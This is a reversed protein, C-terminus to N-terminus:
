GHGVTYILRGCVFLEPRGRSTSSFRRSVLTQGPFHWFTFQWENWRLTEGDRKANQVPIPRTTLCPLRFGAPNGIVESMSHTFYVPSGFAAVVDNVYDTHDDHYHTIWIGDVSSIRGEARMRQLEPLLKSYGADVVFASGTKSLIVRSNGIAIIDTPLKATKAM